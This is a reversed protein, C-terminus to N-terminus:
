EKGPSRVGEAATTRRPGFSVPVPFAGGEYGTANDGKGAFRQGNRERM